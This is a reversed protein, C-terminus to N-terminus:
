GPAIAPDREEKAIGVTYYYGPLRTRFANSVAPAADVPSMNDERCETDVVEM